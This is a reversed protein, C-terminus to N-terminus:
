RRKSKGIDLGIGLGMLFSFVTLFVMGVIKMTEDESM